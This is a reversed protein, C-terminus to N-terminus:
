DENKRLEELLALISEDSPMSEKALCFHLLAEAAAKRKEETDFRQRIVSRYAALIEAISLQRSDLMDGIRERLFRAYLPSTGSTTIAITIDNKKVLAPFIFGCKERDDVINVPINKQRCLDFIHSNLCEDDTAGVVMFADDLDSDAFDRRIIEIGRLDKIESCIELAIVTIQPEFPLLKEIKRFAVTGGGVVVCRRQKIDVFFPFYGM